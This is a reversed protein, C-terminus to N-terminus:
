ATAFLGAQACNLAVVPVSDPVGEVPLTAVSALITTLTDFPACLAARGANLMLTWGAVGDTAPVADRLQDRGV